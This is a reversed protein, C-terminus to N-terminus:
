FRIGVSILYAIMVEGLRGRYTTGTDFDGRLQAEHWAAAVTLGFVLHQEFSAIWGLHAGLSGEIGGGAKVRLSGDLQSTDMQDSKLYGVGLDGLLELHSWSGTAVAYGAGGQVEILDDQLTVTAGTVPDTQTTSGAYSALAVDWVVGGFGVVSGNCYRICFTGRGTDTDRTTLESGSTYYGSNSGASISLNERREVTTYGGLEIRIDSINEDACAWGCSALLLVAARRRM